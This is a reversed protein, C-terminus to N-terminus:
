NQTSFLTLWSYLHVLTGWTSLTDVVLFFSHNCKRVMKEFRRTSTASICLRIPNGLSTLLMLVPWGPASPSCNPLFPPGFAVSPPGRTHKHTANEEHLSHAIRAAISFKGWGGQVLDEEIFTEKNPANAHRSMTANAAAEATSAQVSVVDSDEKQHSKGEQKYRLVVM